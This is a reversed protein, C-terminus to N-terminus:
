WDLRSPCLADMVVDAVASLEVSPLEIVSADLSLLLPALAVSELAPLTALADDVDDGL